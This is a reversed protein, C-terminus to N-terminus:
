GRAKLTPAGQREMCEAHGCNCAIETVDGADKCYTSCYKNNEDVECDCAPHACKRDKEEM